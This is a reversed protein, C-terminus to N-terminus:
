ILWSLICNCCITSPNRLLGQVKTNYDGIMYKESRHVFVADRCMTGITWTPDTADLSVGCREDGVVSALHRETAAVFKGNVCITVAM